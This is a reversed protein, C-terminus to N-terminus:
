DNVPLDGIDDSTGFLEYIETVREAIWLPEDELSVVELWANDESRGVLLIIDGGYTSDVVNSNDGADDRLNVNNSSNVTIYILETLDEVISVSMEYSGTQGAFARTVLTYEGDDPLEFLIAANYGIGSDDDRVLLEGDPSFLDLYCDTSPSSMAILIWDGEEGEFTWLDGNADEIDGSVVEEFELNGQEDGILEGVDGSSGEVMLTYAGSSGGAYSRAIIFYVGDEPVQENAIESDWTGGSDDNFALLGETSSYLEVYTDIIDSNMSITLIDGENGVFVWVQGFDDSVRGSVEVGYELLNDEDVLSLSLTYPSGRNSGDLSDALILYDGDAPLIFAILSNLGLADDNRAIENNDDDFLSLLTDFDESIMKILVIDGEEGAFRYEDGSRGSIEAEIEDGYAIEAQATVAIGFSFLLLLLLLYRWM